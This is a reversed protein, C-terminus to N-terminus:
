GVLWSVLWSWPGSDKRLLWYKRLWDIFERCKISGALEKSCKCRETDQALDIWDLGGCGVEQLDM